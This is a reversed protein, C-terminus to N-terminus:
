LSQLFHTNAYFFFILLYISESHFNSKICLMVASTLYVSTVLCGTTQITKRKIMHQTRSTSCNQKLQTYFMIKKILFHKFPFASVQVTAAALKM